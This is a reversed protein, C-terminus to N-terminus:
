LLQQDLTYDFSHRSLRLKPNRYLAENESDSSPDVERLPCQSCPMKGHILRRPLKLSM